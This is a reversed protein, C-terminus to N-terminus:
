PMNGRRCGHREACHFLDKKLFEFVPLSNQRVIACLVPELHFLTDISSSGRKKQGVLAPISVFCTPPFM